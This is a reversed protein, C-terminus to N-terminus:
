VICFVVQCHLDVSHQKVDSQNQGVNICTNSATPVLHLRSTSPGLSRVCGSTIFIFLRIFPPVFSCAFLKIPYVCNSTDSFNVNHGQIFSCAFIYIFLVQSFFFFSAPLQGTPEKRLTSLNFEPGGFVFGDLPLSSNSGPGCSKLDLLRAM